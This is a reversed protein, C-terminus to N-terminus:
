VSQLFLSSLDREVRDDSRPYLRIELAPIEAIGDEIM